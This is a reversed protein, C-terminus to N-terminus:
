WGGARDAAGRTGAARRSPGACAPRASPSRDRRADLRPGLRQGLGVGHEAQAAAPQADGRGLDVLHLDLRDDAGGAHAALRPVVTRGSIMTGSTPVSASITRRRSCSRRPRRGRGRLPPPRAPSGSRCWSRPAAPRGSPRCSRGRVGVEEGEAGVVQRLHGVAVRAVVGAAEQRLVQLLPDERVVGELRMSSSPTPCSTRMAQSRPRSVRGPGGDRRRRRARRRDALRDVEEVAGAEVVDGAGGVAHRDGAQGRRPRAQVALRFLRRLRRLGRGAMRSRAGSGNGPISPPPGPWPRVLCRSARQLGAFSLLNCFHIVGFPGISVAFVDVVARVVALVLLAVFVPRFVGFLDLVRLQARFLRRHVDFAGVGPLLGDGGALGTGVVVAAFAAEAGGFGEGPVDRSGVDLALGLGGLRLHPAPGARPAPPPPAALFYAQQREAAHATASSRSKEQRYLGPTDRM